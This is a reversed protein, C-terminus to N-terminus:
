DTVWWLQADIGLNLFTPAADPDSATQVWMRGVFGLHRYQELLNAGTVLPVGVVIPASDADWIDILWGGDLVNAYYLRVQYDIGSLQISFLQPTPILPIKYFNAM